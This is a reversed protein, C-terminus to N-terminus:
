GFIFNIPYVVTNTRILLCKDYLIYKNQNIVTM